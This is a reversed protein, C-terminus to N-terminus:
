QYLLDLATQCFPSKEIGKLPNQGHLAATTLGCDSSAAGTLRAIADSSLARTLLTEKVFM